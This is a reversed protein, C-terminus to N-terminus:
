RELLRGALNFSGGPFECSGSEALRWNCPFASPSQATQCGATFASLALVFLILARNMSQDGRCRMM